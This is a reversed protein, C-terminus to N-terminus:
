ELGNNKATSCVWCVAFHREQGKDLAITHVVSIDVDLSYMTINLVVVFSKKKGDKQPRKHSEGARAM